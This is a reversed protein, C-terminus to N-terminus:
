KCKAMILMDLQEKYITKLTEIATDINEFLIDEILADSIKKGSLSNCILSLAPHREYEVALDPVNYGLCYLLYIYYKVTIRIVKGRNLDFDGSEDLTKMAVIVLSYIQAQKSSNTMAIKASLIMDAAIFFKNIDATINSFAGLQKGERLLLMNGNKVCELNVLSLVNTLPMFRSTLRRAGSAYIYQIGNATILEITKNVDGSNKVSTVLGSINLM